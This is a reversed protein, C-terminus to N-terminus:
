FQYRIQMKIEYRTISNDTQQSVQIAFPYLAALKLWLTFNDSLKHQINIYSRLGNGYLAPISFSYLLDNEYAYIRSDYGETYFYAIRGNLKFHKEAPKYFVDQCILFGRESGQKSYYSFEFRSKLSIRENLDHTFNFRIRNIRQPENYNLNGTIMQQEKDEQFFRFYFHTNITPNYSTQAFFETGASPAATTYKIWNFRFVDSYVNIIWGPAPYFTLGLYFAHEDNVRSSETFANSFYSFYTKNINRYVMSLEAISAPKLMCGALLAKGYNASIAAEGFLLVDKVNGKWDIGAVANEKGDPLFRDYPEDGRKMEVDFRTYITTLGFSWRDSAYSVHGGADMQNLSNEGTIESGTRHYGSTQFASFYPKGDLTDVRADLQRTSIFPYFSFHRCTFQSALGRFFLNEDTSSYSRIGPGSKFVRSAEASKGMSFGQWAVLGQGFSVHYDGVFLQTGKKGIRFNAFGSMYDFGQRNSQSFFAEGPDKEAVLGYESRAATQKLRLYYREPSGEYGSQIDKSFTRTSKVFLYGSTKKAGYTEGQNEFSIFPEIKQLLDATFGDISAMEYISFLTGSNERYSILNHIQLESLLHLRNLEESTALNIQIPNQRFSELDDLIEQFNSEDSMIEGESELLDEITQQMEPEQAESYFAIGLIMLIFLGQKIM